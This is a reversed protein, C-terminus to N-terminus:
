PNESAVRSWTKQLEEKSVAGERLIKLFDQTLDVGSSPQSEPLDGADIILDPTQITNSFIEIINNIKVLPPRGSINASTQAIPKGFKKLIDLVFDHDPIRIGETGGDPRNLIVTVKGPWVKKAFDEQRLDIQVIKKADEISAVFVPFVKEKPRQKIEYVKERAELNSYDAILGYITDTPIIAVGGSNLTQVVESAVSDYNEQTLKIIKM